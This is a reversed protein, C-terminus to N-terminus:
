DEYWGVIIKLVDGNSSAGIIKYMNDDIEMLANIAPKSGIDSTKASFLLVSKYIGDYDVDQTVKLEELADEDMIIPMEVGDIIHIEAFEDLNFFVELDDELAEKFTM